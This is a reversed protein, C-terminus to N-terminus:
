KPRLSAPGSVIRRAWATCGTVASCVSYEMKSRSTSSFTSGATRSSPMPKTGYEGSPRPKRVAVTLDASSYALSSM